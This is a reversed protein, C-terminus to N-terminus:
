KVTTSLTCQTLSKRGNQSEAYLAAGLFRSADILKRSAPHESHSLFSGSAVNEVLRSKDLVAIRDALRTAVSLDHTIILISLGFTGQLNALLAVIEAAISVDLASTPEDAILLKPKGSIAMAIMVRQCMGGSLEHPYSQYCREPDRLQVAEFLRLIETKAAGGELGRHLKLVWEIQQGVRYVPNLSAQPDQFIMAIEGGRIRRMKAESLDLLNGGRWKISGGTVSGSAPLLGLISHAMVTKGSGSEGVLGVVEGGAICLNVGSLACHAMRRGANFVVELDSIDLLKGNKHNM